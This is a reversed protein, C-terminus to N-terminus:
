GKEVNKGLYAINFWHGNPPMFRKKCDAKARTTEVFATDTITDELATKPDYIITLSCRGYL